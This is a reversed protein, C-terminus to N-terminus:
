NVSFKVFLDEILSDSLFSIFIVLDCQYQSLKSFIKKIKKYEIISRFSELGYNIKRIIRKNSNIDNNKLNMFITKPFKYYFNQPFLKIDKFIKTFGSTFKFTRKSRSIIKIICMEYKRNSKLLYFSKLIVKILNTTLTNLFTTKDYCLSKTILFAFHFISKFNVRLSIKYINNFIKIFLFGVYELLRSVDMVFVDNIVLRVMISISIILLQGIGDYIWNFQLISVFKLLEFIPNYLSIKKIIDMTNESYFYKTEPNIIIIKKAMPGFCTKFILSFCYLESVLIEAFIKRTAMYM